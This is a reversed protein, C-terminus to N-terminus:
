TNIYSELNDLYKEFMLLPLSMDEYNLYNNLNSLCRHATISLSLICTIYVFLRHCIVNLSANLHFVKTRIETRILYIEDLWVFKSIPYKSIPYVILTFKSPNTHAKKLGTLTKAVFQTTLNILCILSM